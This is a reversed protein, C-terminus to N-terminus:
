CTPSQWRGVASVKGSTCCALTPRCRSKAICVAAAQSVVFVHLSMVPHQEMRTLEIVETSFNTCTSYETCLTTLVVMIRGERQGESQISVLTLCLCVLFPM